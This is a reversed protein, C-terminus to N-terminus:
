CVLTSEIVAGAFIRRNNRHDNAVRELADQERFVQEIAAYVHLWYNIRRDLVLGCTQPEEDVAGVRFLLNAKRNIGHRVLKRLDLLHLERLLALPLASGRSKGNIMVSHRVSMSRDSSTLVVM